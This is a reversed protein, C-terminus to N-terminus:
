CRVENCIAGVPGLVVGALCALHAESRVHGLRTRHCCLRGGCTVCGPDRMGGKGVWGQHAWSLDPPLMHLGVIKM